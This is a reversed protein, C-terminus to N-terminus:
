QILNKSALIKNMSFSLKGYFDFTKISDIVFMYETGKYTWNIHSVTDEKSKPPLHSSYFLQKKSTKKSKLPPSLLFYLGSEQQTVVGKTLLRQFFALGKENTSYLLAFGPVKVDRLKEVETVNFDEDLESEIYKEKSTFIGGQSFNLDGDWAQIFDHTPFGIKQGQSVLYKYFPHEPNSKLRQHDLHVNVLKNTYNGAVFNSGSAKLQLPLTDKSRLCSYLNIHTSDISPYAFAENITADKLTKWSSYIALNKSLYKKANLFNRWNSSVQDVEANAVRNIYKEAKDGQYFFIYDNSYHLYSNIEEFFYVKQNAIVTDSVPFLHKLKEIGASVKSSDTLEILTGWSEDSNAFLYSPNQVQLGYTKAQALIFEESLFERYPVKYYYLMGSVEKALNLLKAYGLFDADPLRDEITPLEKKGFIYPRLVLFAALAVALFFILSFKRAM